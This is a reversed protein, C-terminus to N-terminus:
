PFIFKLYPNKCWFRWMGGITLRSLRALTNKKPPAGTREKIFRSFYLQDEFGCSEAIDAISYSTNKLLFCARALRIKAVYESPTEGTERKFVRTITNRSLGFKQSLAGVSVDQEYHNNVYEVVLEDKGRKKAAVNKEEALLALLKYSLSTALLEEKATGGGTAAYIKRFTRKFDAYNRTKAVPHARTIGMAALYAGIKSGSAGIWSIEWKKGCDSKYLVKSDPFLVYVSGVELRPAPDDCYLTGSGSEVYCIMYHDRIYPGFSHGGEYSGYGCYRLIFPSADRRDNEISGFCSNGNSKEFYM